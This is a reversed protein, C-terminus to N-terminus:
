AAPLTLRYVLQYAFTGDQDLCFTATDGDFRAHAAKPFQLWSGSTFRVANTQLKEVQKADWYGARATMPHSTKAPDSWDNRIIQVTAGPQALFRKFDALSRVNITQTTNSMTPQEKPGTTGATTPKRRASTRAAAADDGVDSDPPAGLTRAEELQEFYDDADRSDIWRDRSV